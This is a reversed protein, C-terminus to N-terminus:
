WKRNGDLLVEIDRSFDVGFRNLCGKDKLGDLLWLVAAEYLNVLREVYRYKCWVKEGIGSKHRRVGCGEVIMVYFKVELGFLFQSLQSLCLALFPISLFSYFWLSWPQNGNSLYCHCDGEKYSGATHM